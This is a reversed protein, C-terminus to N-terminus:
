FSEWDQDIAANGQTLLSKAGAGIKELLGPKAKTAGTDHAPAKAESPQRVSVARAGRTIQFIDVIRDLDAAQAETQEIAANTEEVLAANHQTMEDMQRVATNVEGIASAQERSEKAIGEMLENNAKVADLIASLSEAASAVLKSGGAVEEGSKEILAKVESSAEAASQALRRVEVAVVAFGKGAEGARAAEVSANLALLNTQFAIDDIMGIINSIKASSHTIQEMASNAERMVEGGQEASSSMARSKSSAEEAREANQKVTAALQEMAASTEEITAAQKTTRESLDNAGSLIEGTATKLGRSTEKLQGVIETLKDAVANTDMKLKEFAGAYDGEVRHTLDTEALAALVSGTEALGRDVTQVLNNVSGALSNLEEDPFEADVRRSFDGAVAADVVEGFALQLEQMMKARDARVREERAKEEESMERVRIGNQRFVEVAKAMLGIEDKQDQAPVELDYEGEAMTNMTSTMRTIPRSILGAVFLAAVAGIAVALGSVIIALLVTNEINQSARPGIEDQLTKNTLKLNEAEDAIRPGIVGLTNDFIDNFETTVAVLETFADGYASLDTKIAAIESRFRGFVADDLLRNIRAIENIVVDADAADNTTSYRSAYLRLMLLGRMANAAAKGEALNGAAFSADMVGDMVTEMKPGVEFLVGNIEIDRDKLAVIQDFAQRYATVDEKINSVIAVADANEFLATADEAIEITVQVRKRVAEVADAKASDNFSIAGIRATLINAQIRGLENSQRAIQRYEKFEGNALTLGYYAISAVVILLVLILGSGFGIKASVKLNNFWKLM